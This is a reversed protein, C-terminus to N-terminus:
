SRLVSWLQIGGLLIFCGLSIASFALNTPNAYNPSTSFLLSANAVAGIGCMALLVYLWTGAEMPLRHFSIVCLILVIAAVPTLPSLSGSFIFWSTRITYIGILVVLLAKSLAIVSGGL